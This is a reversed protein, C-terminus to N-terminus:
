HEIPTFHDDDIRLWDHRPGGIRLEREVRHVRAAAILKLMVGFLARAGDMARRVHFRGPQKSARAFRYNGARVNSRDSGRELTLDFLRDKTLTLRIM